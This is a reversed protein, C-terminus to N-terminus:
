VHACTDLSKTTLVASCTEDIITTRESSSKALLFVKKLFSHLVNDNISEKSELRSETVMLITKVLFPSFVSSSTFFDKSLNLSFSCFFRSVFFSDINDFSVVTERLVRSFKFSAFSCSRTFNFSSISFSELSSSDRESNSCSSRTLCILTKSIRNCWDFITIAM